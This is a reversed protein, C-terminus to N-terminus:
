DWNETNNIVSEVMISSHSSSKLKNSKVKFFIDKKSLADKLKIKQNNLIIEDKHVFLKCPEKNLRECRQILQSRLVVDKCNDAYFDRCYGISTAQGTKSLVFYVPAVHNEMHKFDYSYIKGQNYDELKKYAEESIEIPTKFTYNNTTRNESTYCHPLGLFLFIIFIKSANM